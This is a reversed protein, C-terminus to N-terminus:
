AFLTDWLHWDHSKLLEDLAVPYSEDRARKRLVGEHTTAAGTTANSRLVSEHVVTVSAGSDILERAQDIRGRFNPSPSNASGLLM